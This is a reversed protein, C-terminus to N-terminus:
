GSRKTLDRLAALREQAEKFGKALRESRAKEVEARTGIAKRAQPLLTTSEPLAKRLAGTFAREGSIKLAAADAKAAAEFREAYRKEAISLRADTEDLIGEANKTDNTAREKLQLGIDGPIIVKRGVRFGERASLEPNARLLSAEAHRLVKATEEGEIVFLREILGRLSRERGLTAIKDAM